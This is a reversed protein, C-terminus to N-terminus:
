KMGCRKVLAALRLLYYTFQYAKRRLGYMVLADDLRRRVSASRFFVGEEEMVDSIEELNPQADNYSLAGEVAIKILNIFQKTEGIVALHAYASGWKETYNLFRRNVVVLDDLQKRQFKSTTSVQNKRYFYLPEELQVLSTANDIVPLLQFLDEAYFLGRYNAYDSDLDICQMRVAKTWLLNFRGKCVQHKVQMYEDDRYIGPALRLGKRSSYDLDLSYPYCAIDADSSSLAAHIRELAEWHLMDDADLFVAYRGKAKRLGIRRALLPGNNAASFGRVKSSESARSAIVDPTTDTSGDDVVIIEYDSFTQAFVSDIAEGLYRAANYAPIIVSFFPM